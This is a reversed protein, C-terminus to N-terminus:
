ISREYESESWGTIGLGRVFAALIELERASASSLKAQIYRLNTEKNREYIAQEEENTM